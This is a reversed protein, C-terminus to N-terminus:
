YKFMARALGKLIVRKAIPASARLVLEAGNVLVTTTGKGIAPGMTRAIGSFVVKGFETELGL